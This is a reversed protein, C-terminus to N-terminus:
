PWRAPRRWTSRAVRTARPAFRDDDAVPTQLDRAAVDRAFRDIRDCVGGVLRKATAAAHIAGDM